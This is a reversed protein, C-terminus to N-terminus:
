ILMNAGGRLSYIDTRGTRRRLAYAIQRSRNGAECVLVIPTSPLEWQEWNYWPKKEAPFPLPSPADRLDIWHATSLARAESLSLELLSPLPSPLWFTHTEGRRLDIRFLRNRPVGAPDALYQAALAAQWSGIIGPLAGIVGAESCAPSDANEGFLAAYSVGEILAVQGEWQFIAGYVWPKGMVRAAADIALRTPLNDTGDIWISADKGIEELLAKEAWRQHIEVHLDPRLQKLHDTLVEVKPRGLKQPTYLPQRHLNEETITDPDVLILKGIGMAALYLAAPLGLGGVGIILASQAELAAQDWGPLRTQALYRRDM